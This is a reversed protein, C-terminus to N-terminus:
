DVVLTLNISHQVGNATVQVPVTYTGTPTTNTSNGGSGGGGGKGNGGGGGSASCSTFVGTSLVLVGVLLLARRFRRFAALPLFALLGCLAALPKSSGTLSKPRAPLNLAGTTQSTTVDVTEAGSTGASVNLTAPTSTCAAYQPLTGCQFSFGASTGGLPTITLSFGGTQGSAVTVNSPGDAAVTFDFGTGTLPVTAPTGLTTSSLTLNGTVPGAATPQFEVGVTCSTNPALSGTCTNSVLAFGVSASLNLNSLTNAPDINTITVTTAASTQGVGVVPFAISAPKLQV